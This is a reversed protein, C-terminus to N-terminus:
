AIVTRQVYPNSVLDNVVGLYSTKSRNYNLIQTALTSLQSADFNKFSDLVVMPDFRDNQAQKMIVLAISQSTTPDFGKNEFFGTVANFANANLEVPVSYFNDFTRVVGDASNNSPYPTPPLNSFTKM